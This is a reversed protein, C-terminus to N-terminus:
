IRNYIAIPSKFGGINLSTKLLKAFHEAIGSDGKHYSASFNKTCGEFHTLYHEMVSWRQKPKNIDDWKTGRFEDCMEPSLFPRIHKKGNNFALHLHKQCFDKNQPGYNLDRWADLDDRFHIMPKKEIGFHGEAGLGSFFVEEKIAKYLYLFPWFCEFDTKKKAGLGKLIKIDYILEELNEPLRVVNHLIGYQQCLERAMKVDTSENEGLQFTYCVFTKKQDIAEFFLVRSDMGGSLLVAFNDEKGIYQGLVKKVNPVKLSTKRRVARRKEPKM